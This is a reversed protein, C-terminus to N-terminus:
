TDGTVAQCSWGMHSQPGQPSSCRGQVVHIGRHCGFQEETVGKVHREYREKQKWLRLLEGSGFFYFGFERVNLFVGSIRFWVEMGEGVSIWHSKTWEVHNGSKKGFLKLYAVQQQLLELSPSEKGREKGTNLSLRKKM